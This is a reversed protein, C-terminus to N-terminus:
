TLLNYSYFTCYWFNELVFNQYPFNQHNLMSEDFEDSKEVTLTQAM